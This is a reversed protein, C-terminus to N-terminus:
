QKGRAEHAMQALRKGMTFWVRSQYGFQKHKLHKMKLSAFDDLRVYCDSVLACSAMMLMDNIVRKVQEETLEGRYNSAISKAIINKTIVTKGKKTKKGKVKRRPTPQPGKSWHHGDQM